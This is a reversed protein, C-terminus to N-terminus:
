QIEGKRAIRKIKQQRRDRRVDELHACYQRCYKRKHRTKIGYIRDCDPRACVAFRVKAIKDLYLTALIAQMPTHVEVTGSLQKGNWKVNIDLATLLRSIMKYGFEAEMKAWQTYSNLIAKRILTQWRWFDEVTHFPSGEWYNRNVFDLVAGSNHEVALFEDRLEWPDVARASFVLPAFELKKSALTGDKKLRWQRAGVNWYTFQLPLNFIAKHSM